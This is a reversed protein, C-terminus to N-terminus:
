RYCIHKKYLLNIVDYFYVFEDYSIINDTSRLYDLYMFKNDIYKELDVKNSGLDDLDVGKIVILDTNKRTISKIIEKVKNVIINKM